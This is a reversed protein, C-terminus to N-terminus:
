LMEALRQIKFEPNITALLKNLNKDKKLNQIDKDETILMDCKNMASSLILCDVFDKLIGRLKFATFLLKNEHIPIKTISDEYVISKIGKIAREPPLIGTAIYKGGKASLEFISIDSIFVEYGEEMLKIPAEKPLGKITIGITPLFYTTDLLLKM